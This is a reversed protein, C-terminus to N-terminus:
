TAFNGGNKVIRAATEWAWEAGLGTKSDIVSAFRNRAGCIRAPQGNLTVPTHVLAIREDYTM